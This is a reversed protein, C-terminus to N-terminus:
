PAGGGPPASGGLRTTLRAARANLRAQRRTLGLLYGFLVLWFVFYAAYYYTM